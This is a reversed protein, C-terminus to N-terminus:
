HLKLIKGTEVSGIWSQSLDDWIAQYEAHFNNIDETEIM